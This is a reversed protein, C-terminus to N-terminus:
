LISKLYGDGDAHYKLIARFNGQNISDCDTVYTVLM